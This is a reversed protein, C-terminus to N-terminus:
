TVAPMPCTCGVGHRPPPLLKTCRARYVLRAVTKSSSYGLREAIQRHKLGVRHLTLYDQAFEALTRSTPFDALTGNDRAHRHCRDCLGRGRHFM